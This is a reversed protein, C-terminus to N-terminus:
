LLENIHESERNKCTDLQNAYKKAAQLQKEASEILSNIITNARSYAKHKARSEAIRKGKVENFKDEPNLKAKGIVSFRGFKTNSRDMVANDIMGNLSSDKLQLDVCMKCITTNGVKTFGTKVFRMRNKFQKNM